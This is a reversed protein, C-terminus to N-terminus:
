VDLYLFCTESNYKLVFCGKKLRHRKNRKIEIIKRRSWECRKMLRDGAQETESGKDCHTRTPGWRWPSLMDCVISWLALCPWIIGEVVVCSWLLGGMMCVTKRPKTGHSMDEVQKLDEVEKLKENWEEVKNGDQWRGALVLTFCM